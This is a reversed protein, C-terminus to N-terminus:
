AQKPMGAWGLCGGRGLRGGVQLLVIDNVLRQADFGNEFIRQISFLQRTPEPRGLNHAGLVVQVAQFNRCCLPHLLHDLHSKPKPTPSLGWLEASGLGMGEPHRVVWPQDKPEMAGHGWKPRTFFPCQHPHGPPAWVRAERGVGEM